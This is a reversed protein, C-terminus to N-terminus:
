HTPDQGSPGGEEWLHEIGALDFTLSAAFTMPDRKGMM